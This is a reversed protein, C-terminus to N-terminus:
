GMRRALDEARPHYYRMIMATTQHGTIKALEVPQFGKEVLRSTAEHRLDHFRLDSLSATERVRAFAQSISDAARLQTWISGQPQKGQAAEQAAHRSSLLRKARISLPVRREPKNKAGPPMEIAPADFDVHEWRIRALEGRRMATELALVIVDHIDGGEAEAAKLLLAEEDVSSDKDKRLRRERSRGQPPLKVQDVPNGFPLYFGWEKMAINIIRRLIALDHRATQTAVVKLRRDRHEAIIAPTLNALYLHGFAKDLMRLYHGVSGGSDRLGPVVEDKYRSLIESVLTREAPSFDRYTGSRMDAELRRAWDQAETKTDFTRYRPRFGRRIIQAQYVARGHPGHRRRITAM